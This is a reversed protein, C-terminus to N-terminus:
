IKKWILTKHIIFKSGTVVIEDKRMETVKLNFTMDKDPAYMTGNVWEKDAPDYELNKIIVKGILSSTTDPVHDDNYLRIIKGFYKNGQKYISVDMNNPLHYKGIIADGNQAWLTSSAMLAIIAILSFRWKFINLKM